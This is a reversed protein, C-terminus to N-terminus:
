LPVDRKSDYYGWQVDSPLEGIAHRGNVPDSKRAFASARRGSMMHTVLQLYALAVYKLVDFPVYDVGTLDPHDVTELPDAAGADTAGDLTSM